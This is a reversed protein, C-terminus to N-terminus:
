AVSAPGNEVHGTDLLPGLVLSGSGGLLLTSLVAFNRRRALPSTWSAVKWLVGQRLRIRTPTLFLDFGTCDSAKWGVGASVSTASFSDTFTRMRTLQCTVSSRTWRTGMHTRCLSTETALVLRGASTCVGVVLVTPATTFDTTIEHGTSFVLARSRAM